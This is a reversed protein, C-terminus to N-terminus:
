QKNTPTTQRHQDADSPVSVSCPRPNTPCIAPSTRRSPGPRRTVHDRGSGLLKAPTGPTMPIHTISSDAFNGEPSSFHWTAGLGDGGPQRGSLRFRGRWTAGLGDGGPRLLNAQLGPRTGPLRQGRRTLCCTPQGAASIETTRAAERCIALGHAGFTGRGPLNASCRDFYLEFKRYYCRYRRRHRQAPIRARTPERRKGSDLLTLRFLSPVSVERKTRSPRQTPSPRTSTTAPQLARSSM